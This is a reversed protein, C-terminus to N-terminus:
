LALSGLAALTVATNRRLLRLGFRVDQALADLSPLLKIDLSRDRLSLRMGLRRAAERRAEAPSLGERILDDTRADLHFRLESEIDDALRGSRWVTRWRSFWSM